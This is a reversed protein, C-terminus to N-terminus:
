ATRRARSGSRRGRGAAKQAWEMAEAMEEDSFAGDAREYAAVGALGARLTLEKRATATLWGSYTTGTARAAEAIAADLDPPVSISRKKRVPMGRSYYLPLVAEAAPVAAQGSRIHLCAPAPVLM